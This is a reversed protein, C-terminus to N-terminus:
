QDACSFGATYCLSRPDPVDGFGCAGLTLCMGLALTKIIKM